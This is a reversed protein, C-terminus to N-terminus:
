AAPAEPPLIINLTERLLEWQGSTFSAAGPRFGNAGAQGVALSALTEADTRWGDSASLFVAAMAPDAVARGFLDARSGAKWEDPLALPPVAKASAATQEVALSVPVRNPEKAGASLSFTEDLSAIAAPTDSGHDFGGLTQVHHALAFRDLAPLYDYAAMSGGAIGRTLTTFIESIRTGNKWGDPATLNRVPPDLGAGAAGDGLGKPGHCSACTQAFLAAGREMMAADGRFAQELDVPASQKGKVVPIEAPDFVLDEAPFAAAPFAEDPSKVSFSRGAFYLGAGIAYLALVLWLVTRISGHKCECAPEAM